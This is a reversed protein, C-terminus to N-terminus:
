NAITQDIKEKEYYVGDKLRIPRCFHRGNGYPSLISINIRSTKAIILFMKRAAPIRYIIRPANNM